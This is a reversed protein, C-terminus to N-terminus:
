YCIALCIFEVIDCGSIPWDRSTERDSIIWNSKKKQKKKNTKQQGNEITLSAPSSSFGVFKWVPGNVKEISSRLVLRTMSLSRTDAM